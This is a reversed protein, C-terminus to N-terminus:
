IPEVPRVTERYAHWTAHGILPLVIALGLYATAFGALVLLVIIAAWLLMVGKNRLVANISTLVSTIADTGRDLMMPLSVVSASFVITGFVAGIASGIALFEIWGLVGLEEGFPFFVHVMSAARAWVLLVVLMVLAFLAENRLHNRSEAWCVGLRPERGQELQRSISYLGFALVPGSLIFGVGLTFLALTHGEGWALWTILYGFLVLGAGYALSQARARKMDQWGLKLWRLPADVGLKNSPYFLPEIDSETENPRVAGSEAM